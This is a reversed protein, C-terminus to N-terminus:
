AHPYHYSAASTWKIQLLGSSPHNYIFIHNIIPCSDLSEPSPFIELLSPFLDDLSEPCILYCCVGRLCPSTLYQNLLKTESRRGTEAGRQRERERSNTLMRKEELLAEGVLNVPLESLNQKKFFFTCHGSRARLPLPCLFLSRTKLRKM